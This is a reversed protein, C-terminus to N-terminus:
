HNELAILEFTRAQGRTAPLDSPKIAAAVLLFQEFTMGAQRFGGQCFVFAYFELMEDRITMPFAPSTSAEPFARPEHATAAGAPVLRPQPPPDIAKLSLPRSARTQILAGM